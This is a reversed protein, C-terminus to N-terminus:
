LHTQCGECSRSVLTDGAGGCAYLANLQLGDIDNTEHWLETFRQGAMSYSKLYYIGAPLGLGDLASADVQRASADAVPQCTASAGAVGVVPMAAAVLLTTAITTKWNLHIM